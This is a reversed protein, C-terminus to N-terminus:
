SEISNYTELIKKNINDDKFTLISNINTKYQNDIIKLKRIWNRLDNASPNSNIINNEIVNLKKYFNSEVYMGELTIVYKKFDEVNSLLEDKAFPPTYEVSGSAGFMFNFDFKNFDSIIKNELLFKCLSFVSNLNMWHFTSTIHLSNKRIKNVREFNKLANNWKAGTRFYEFSDGMGDISAQITLNESYPWYEEVSYDKFDLVTLNTNYTLTTTELKSSKKLKELIDWHQQNLLPEGGAFYISEVDSIKDSIEVINKNKKNVFRLKKAENESINGIKLDADILKTSYPSGCSKCALNCVNDARYDLYAIPKAEETFNSLTTEHGKLRYSDLGNEESTHCRECRDLKKGALIDRRIKKYEEGNRIEDLSKTRLNGLSDGEDICCLKIDDDTHKYLHTWIHECFYPNDKIDM